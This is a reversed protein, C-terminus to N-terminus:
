PPLPRSVFLSSTLVTSAPFKPCLSTPLDTSASDFFRKGRVGTLQVHPKGARSCLSRGKCRKLHLQPCNFVLLGTPKKYPMNCQSSDVKVFHINKKQLLRKVVNTKWLKSSLPNELYGPLHLQLSKRIVKVAGELMANAERVKKQDGASLGLLGMLTDPDNGRLPTPMRSSWPARRARSWTNCPLDIGVVDFCQLHELVDRWLSPCALNNCPATAFDILASVGGSETVAEACRGVGAFFSLFKTGFVERFKKTARVPLQCTGSRRLENFSRRIREGFALWLDSRKNM